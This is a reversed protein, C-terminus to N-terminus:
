SGHERALTGLHQALYPPVLVGALLAEHDVIEIVVAVGHLVDCGGM